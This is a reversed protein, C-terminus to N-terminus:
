ANLLPRRSQTTIGVTTPEVYAIPVQWANYLTQSQTTVGITTPEIYAIPVQWANYLTRPELFHNSIDSFKTLYYFLPGLIQRTVITTV